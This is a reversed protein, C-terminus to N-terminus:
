YEQDEDPEKFDIKLSLAILAVQDLVHAVSPWEQKAAEYKILAINGSGLDLSQKGTCIAHFFEVYQCSYVRFDM